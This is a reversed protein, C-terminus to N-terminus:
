MFAADLLMVSLLLGLMLTLLVIVGRKIWRKAAENHRTVTLWFAAAVLGGLLGFILGGIFSGYGLTSILVFPVLGALVLNLLTAQRFYKLMLYIPLGYCLTIVAAVMVMYGAIIAGTQYSDISIHHQPLRILDYLEMSLGYFWVVLIMSLPSLLLARAIYISQRNGNM